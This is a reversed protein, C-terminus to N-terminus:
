VFNGASRLIDKVVNMPFRDEKFLLIAALVAQVAGILFFIVHLAVVGRIMVCQVVIFMAQGCGIVGSPWGRYRPWFRPFVACFANGLGIFGFLIIGPIFYSDFPSNKLNDLPMGLPAYPDSIAAFGGAMGGVAVLVHMVTLIRNVAKM